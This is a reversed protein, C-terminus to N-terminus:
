QPGCSKKLQLLQSHLPGDQLGEGVLIANARPHIDKIDKIGSAQVVFKDPAVWDFGQLFQPNSNGTRPSRSNWVVVPAASLLLENVSLCEHWCRPHDPWWGVTLVYEAHVLSAKVSPLTNHWGKALVPLSQAKQARQLDVPVGGYDRGVHVSIIDAVEGCRQLLQEWRFRSEFLFPSRQKIEAVILPRSYVKPLKLDELQKDNLM